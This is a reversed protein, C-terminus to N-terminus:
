AVEPPIGGVENNAPPQMTRKARCDAALVNMQDAIDCLRHKDGFFEFFPLRLNQGEVFTRTKQGYGIEILADINTGEAWKIDEFSQATFM